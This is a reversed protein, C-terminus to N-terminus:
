QPMKIFLLTNGSIQLHRNCNKLKILNENLEQKKFHSISKYM